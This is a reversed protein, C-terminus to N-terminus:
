KANDRAATTRGVTSTSSLRPKPAVEFDSSDDDAIADLRDLRIAPAAHRSPSTLTDENETDSDCV